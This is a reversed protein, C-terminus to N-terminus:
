RAVEVGACPTASQGHTSGHQEVPNAAALPPHAAAVHSALSGLGLMAAALLLFAVLTARPATIRSIRIM